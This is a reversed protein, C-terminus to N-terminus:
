FDVLQLIILFKIGVILILNMVEQPVQFKTTVVKTTCWTRPSVLCFLTIAKQLNKRDKSPQLMFRWYVYLVTFAVFQM